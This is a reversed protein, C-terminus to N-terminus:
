RKAVHIPTGVAVHAAEMMVESFTPHPHITAALDEPSVGMEIALVGGAILESAHPGVIHVGIVADADRDFVIQAFGDRAGVTAARGSASLPFRAQDARIGLATANDMTLGASAIEPDSYVVMPIAAPEFAVRRGCLAEAAVLAEASAKHALAPGPTIDGIAAINSTARRDPSVAIFGEGTLEIGVTRLGLESTNPTRGVAVIVKEAHVESLGDPGDVALVGEAFGKAATRLLVTVGLGKLRKEVPRALSPELAPLIRDAFEVITVKSGLKAWATGLEIGIYGGGVVALTEPTSDLALAGSSDLVNEGDFPLSPIEVPTSGTALIVDNYELFLPPGEGERVVGAGQRTFRFTGKVIRVGASELLSRVGTTLEDIRQNKWEQFAEPEFRADGAVIGRPAGDRTASFVSAVEILAKSPICGVRLCVGGVGDAGNREILTVQRGLQSARLAATYGGPGGGVVLLDVGEAVEGVVM